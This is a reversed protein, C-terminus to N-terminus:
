FSGLQENSPRVKEIFGAPLTGPKKSIVSITRTIRHGFEDYWNGEYRFACYTLGGDDWKEQVLYRGM